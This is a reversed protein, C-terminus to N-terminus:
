SSPEFEPQGWQSNAYSWVNEYGTGGVLLLQQHARDYVMGLLSM